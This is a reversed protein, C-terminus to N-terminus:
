TKRAQRAPFAVVTGATERVPAAVAPRFEPLTERLLRALEDTDFVTVADRLRVLAPQLKERSV